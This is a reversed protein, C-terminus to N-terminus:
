ALDAGYARLTHASAGRTATLQSLYRDVRGRLDLTAGM